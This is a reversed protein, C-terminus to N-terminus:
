KREGAQIVINKHKILFQVSDTIGLREVIPKPIRCINGGNGDDNVSVEFKTEDKKWKPMM